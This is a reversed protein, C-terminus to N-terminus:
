LKGPELVRVWNGFDRRETLLELDACCFGIGLSDVVCLRCFGSLDRLLLNLIEFVVGISKRFSVCKSDLHLLLPDSRIPVTKVM